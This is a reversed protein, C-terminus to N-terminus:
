PSRTNTASVDLNMDTYANDCGSVADLVAEHSYLRCGITPQAASQVRAYPCFTCSSNRRVTNSDTMVVIHTCTKCMGPYGYLPM